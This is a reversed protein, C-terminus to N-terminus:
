FYVKSRTIERASTTNYYVPNNVMKLISESIEISNKVSVFTDYDPIEGLIERHLAIDTAIVPIGTTIAELIV